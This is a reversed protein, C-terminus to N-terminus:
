PASQHVVLRDMAFPLHAGSLGMQDALSAMAHFASDLLAPHVGYRESEMEEGLALEAVEVWVM